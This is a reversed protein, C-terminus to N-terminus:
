PDDPELIFGHNWPQDLFNRSPLLVISAPLYSYDGPPFTVEDIDDGRARRQKIEAKVFPEEAQRVLEILPENNIYIQTCYTNFLPNINIKFSDLNLM